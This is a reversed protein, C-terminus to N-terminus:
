LKGAQPLGYMGKDIKMYVKNNHTKNQLHYQEIIPQTIISIPMCIYESRPLTTGLYFKSIDITMFRAGPTSIVSNILLKVTTIDATPTTVPDPYNILNGGVTLRTRHVEPKNPRESVVIRGYTIDHKREKPITSYPVFHLTNTGEIDKDFGQALRGLENCFSKIWLTSKNPTNILNKYEMPTGSSEDIVANITNKPRLSYPIINNNNITEVRPTGSTVKSRLNYNHSPKNKNEININKVRPIVHM